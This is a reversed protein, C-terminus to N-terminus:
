GDDVIERKMFNDRGMLIIMCFEILDNIDESKVLGM